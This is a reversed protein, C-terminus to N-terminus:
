HGTVGIVGVLMCRAASEPLVHCMYEPETQLKRRKDLVRNSYNFGGQPSELPVVTAEALIRRQIAIAHYTSASIQIGARGVRM